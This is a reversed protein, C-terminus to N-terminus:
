ELKFSLKIVLWNPTNNSIDCSWWHKVILNSVVSLWIWVWREKITKSKSDDVQYFKEKLFPLEFADVWVWNDKFELYVINDVKNSSIKLTTNNWAYKIFNSIINHFIQMLASKDAYLIMDKDKLILEQNNSNLKKSYELELLNFLTKIEINEKNLLIETNEAQEYKMIQDVINVLRDLEVSLAKWIEDNLTFTWDQIWELYCKIWTIPTKIEHSIDALFRSRIKEQYSLRKSLSNLQNILLWFEDKNKYNILWFNWDTKFNKLKLIIKNIPSFSIKFFTYLFIIVSLILVLNVLLMASLVRKVFNFEPTDKQFIENSFSSLFITISNWWLANQIFSNNEEIYKNSNKTESDIFKNVDDELYTTFLWLTKDLEKYKKLTEPSFGSIIEEIDIDKTIVHTTIVESTYDEFYKSLFYQFFYINSIIVIIILLITSIIFKTIISM